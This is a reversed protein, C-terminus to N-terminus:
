EGCEKKRDEIVAKADEVLAAKHAAFMIGWLAQRGDDTLELQKNLFGAKELAKTDADLLREAIKSLM